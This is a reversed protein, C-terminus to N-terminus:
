TNEVIFKVSRKVIKTSRLIKTHGLGHSLLLSGKKLNQRIHYACSVPIDGDETDHILLVPINIKKAMQSSSFDDVRIQWKKELRSQIKKAHHKKLHLNKAFDHIIHSVYDCSGITVLTKLKLFSATTNYLCMGGFSHGIGAEFPGYTKDIKRITELFDLMTTQKGSSKGHAPGDFSIVMFGKELLTNAFAFLQTSRGAWGHVLLVKKKSHGYFLIEIERKIKPVILRKKQASKYMHEERQPTPFNIPTIFLLEGIKVALTSSFFVLVKVLWVVPKPIALIRTSKTYPTLLKLFNNKHDNPTRINLQCILVM